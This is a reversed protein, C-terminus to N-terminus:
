DKKTIAASRPTVGMLEEDALECMGMAAVIDFKRKNVYSYKILENLMELFNIEECYDRIYNEVLDLYHEINTVSASAGYMKTNVKTIDTQTARPRKFLLDLKKASKFHTILSVRTTEIVAKCNYFQLLKIANDFAERVDRPRDKYIAVYKPEKLGFQRRKIVICFSSVDKQGTSSSEDSDISDIGAVYLNTYPIDNGDLMPLESILVKGENHLELTPVKSRDIEGIDKNFEWNLKAKKPIEVIKHLEINAIQDALKETDFRNDGQRILAEEPTFCFESKYELLNKADNSKKVRMSNYYIKADIENCVGREDCAPIYMSYAPIFFGTYVPQGNDTHNHLYPLIDYDKPNYFMSALGALQPGEDGGTGWVFRTGIRRGLVSVLAESQNYATVLIPNSGAEEFFLREVRGGRLKRPKDAIVGEVTAMWGFETGESSVKSARKMMDSDKKMRVHKFGGQTETNLFEMQLWAKDLVDKVFKESSATYLCRSKKVTTYVRLGLSAAIESFGVGRSKLSGVDKGLKECMEIYHFYEYQKAFFDPFTELRGEAAKQVNTVNLLRYFNLFYYNDGTLTYKGITM